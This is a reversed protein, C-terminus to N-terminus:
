GDDDLASLMVVKAAPLAKIVQRSAELGNPQPMAIDMLVVAQRGDAAEGIVEFDAELM